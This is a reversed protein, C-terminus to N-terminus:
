KIKRLILFFLFLFLFLFLFFFLVFCPRLQLLEKLSLVQAEETLLEKEM